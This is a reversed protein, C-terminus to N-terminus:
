LSINWLVGNIAGMVHLRSSCFLVNFCVSMKGALMWYLVYKNM